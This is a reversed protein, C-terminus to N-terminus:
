ALMTAAPWSQQASYSKTWLPGCTLAASYQIVGKREQTFCVHQHQSATAPSVSFRCLLSKLCSFSQWCVCSAHASWVFCWECIASDWWLWCFKRDKVRSDLWHETHSPWQKHDWPSSAWISISCCGAKAKSSFNIHTPLPVLHYLFNCLAATELNFSLTVHYVQSFLVNLESM